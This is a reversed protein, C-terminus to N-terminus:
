GLNLYPDLMIWGAMPAGQLALGQRLQSLQTRTVVGPSTIFLQTACKSTERLNTSVILTRGNLARSLETSFAQLQERSVNGLPILGIATQVKM